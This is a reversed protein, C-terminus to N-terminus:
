EVPRHALAAADNHADSPSRRCGGKIWQYLDSMNVFVRTWGDHEILRQRRAGYLEMSRHERLAAAAETANWDREAGETLLVNRRGDVPAIDVVVDLGPHEFRLYARLLGGDHHARPAIVALPPVDISKPPEAGTWTYRHPGHWDVDKSEFGCRRVMCRSAYNGRDVEAWMKVGAPALVDVASQLMLTGYGRGQYAAAVAVYAIEVNDPAHARLALVAVPCPGGYVVLGSGREFMRMYLLKAGISHLFREQSPHVAFASLTHMDNEDLDALRRVGTLEPPLRATLAAEIAGLLAPDLLM